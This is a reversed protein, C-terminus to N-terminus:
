RSERSNSFTTVLKEKVKDVLQNFEKEQFGTEKFLINKNTDIIVTSPFGKFGLKKMSISIPDKLVKITSPIQLEKIKSEIATDKDDVFVIWVELGSDKLEEHVQILKRIEKKCPKCNSNTLNIWLIKNQPNEQLGAYLLYRKTNLTYFPINPIPESYIYLNTLLYLIFLITKM